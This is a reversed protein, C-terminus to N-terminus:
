IKLPKFNKNTGHDMYLGVWNWRINYYSTRTNIDYIIDNIERSNYFCSRAANGDVNSTNVTFASLKQMILDPDCDIFDEM